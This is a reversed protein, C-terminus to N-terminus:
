HLPEIYTNVFRYLETIHNYELEPSDLIIRHIMQKVNSITDYMHQIDVKLNMYKSNNKYTFINNEVKFYKISEAIMEKYKLAMECMATYHKVIAFGYQMLIYAESMHWKKLVYANRRKLNRRHQKRIKKSAYESRPNLILDFDVPPMYYQFAAAM